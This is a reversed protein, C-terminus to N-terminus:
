FNGQGVSNGVLTGCASAFGVPLMFTLLGISRMVTQAAIIETALYSAMLTFIDFAWWGWLSMSMSKLGMIIQQPLLSVTQRSFLKVNDYSKFRGGFTVLGFNVAFRTFWMFTTAWCIGTFGWGLHGYFHWVLLAHVATGTITSAMTYWTVRQSSSFSAYPQSQSYFFIGPLVTHVYQTAYIAIEPNQGIAIYIDHIFLQPILLLLFMCANLFCQRNRYIACSELDGAGYAQSIFTSAGFSFSSQISIVMIGLTLSGLGFGALQDTGERGLVAANVMTYIPHFLSGFIPMYALGFVTKFRQALTLEKENEPGKETTRTQQEFELLNAKLADKKDDQSM